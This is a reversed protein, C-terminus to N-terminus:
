STHKQHSQRRPMRSAAPGAWNAAQSVKSAACAGEAFRSVSAATSVTRMLKFLASSRDLRVAMLFRRLSRKSTLAPHQQSSRRCPQSRTISFPPLDFAPANCSSPRWQKPTKRTRQQCLSLLPTATVALSQALATSPFGASKMPNWLGRNQIAVRGPPRRHLRSGHESSAPLTLPIAALHRWWRPIGTATCTSPEQGASPCWCAIAGETM